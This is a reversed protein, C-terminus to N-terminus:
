GAPKQRDYPLVRRRRSEAGRGYPRNWRLQPRPERIDLLSQLNAVMRRLDEESYTVPAPGAVDGSSWVVTREYVNDDEDAEEVANTSDIVMKLLHPGDTLPVRDSLGDWDESWRLVTPPTSGPFEFTLVQEGDYYLDVSFSAEVEVSSRNSVVVDIFPKMDVTLRSNTFTGRDNSVVFPGDWGFGWGPVLNPLVLPAPPTPEPSAVVVPKSPVGGTDWTFEKAFSTIRRM